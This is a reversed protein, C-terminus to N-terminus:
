DFCSMGIEYYKEYDRAAFASRQAIKLEGLFRPADLLEIPMGRATALESVRVGGRQYRSTTVFVGKTYGGILLAGALSRIQEANIANKYRKVQVGITEDGRELIVDIGGDGSYSTVRAHFGCDRFVSAVTEEFLRPHLEFRKEYRITLYDRIDQLPQEVDTLDLEKLSGAAGTTMSFRHVGDDLIDSSDPDYHITPELDQQEVLVTWWGCGACVAPTVGVESNFAEFDKYRPPLAQLTSRCFFCTSCHAIAGALEWSVHSYDWISM